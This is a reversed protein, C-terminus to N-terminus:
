IEEREQIFEEFFYGETQAFDLLIQRNFFYRLIEYRIEENFWDNIIGEIAEVLEASSAVVVVENCDTTLVGGLVDEKLYYNEKKVHDNNPSYLLLLAGAPYHNLTFRLPMSLPLTSPLRGEKITFVAVYECSSLMFAAEVSTIKMTGVCELAIVKFNRVEIIFTFITFGEKSDGLAECRFINEEGEMKSVKNRCLTNYNIDQFTETVDSTSLLNAMIFDKALCRMIFYNVLQVNETITETQMILFAETDFEKIKKNLLFNYENKNEPLEGKTQITRETMEQVLYALQNEDIEIFKGGLCGALKTEITLIEEEDDEWVSFYTEIGHGEADIYFFQHLTEFEESNRIEWNAYLYMTGMLRTNTMKASRFIKECGEKLTNGGQIVRLM